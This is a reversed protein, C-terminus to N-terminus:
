IPLSAKENADAVKLLMQLYSRRAHSGTRAVNTIAMASPPFCKELGESGASGAVAEAMRLKAEVIAPKAIEYQVM